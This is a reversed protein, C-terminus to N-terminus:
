LFIEETERNLMYIDLELEKQSKYRKAMDIYRTHKYGYKTVKYLYSNTEKVKVIKNVRKDKMNLYYIFRDVIIQALPIDDTNTKLNNVFSYLDWNNLDKEKKMDIILLSTKYFAYRVKKSVSKQLQLMGGYVDHLISLVFKEVDNLGKIEKYSDLVGNNQWKEYITPTVNNSASTVYLCLNEIDIKMSRVKEYGM